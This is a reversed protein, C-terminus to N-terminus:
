GTRTVRELAARYVRAEAFPGALREAQRLWIAIAWQGDPLQGIKSLETLDSTVQALYNNHGPLGAAVGDPLWSLLLDRDLRRRITAQVLADIDTEGLPAVAKAAVPPRAPRAAGSLRAIGDVIPTLDHGTVRIPHLRELGFPLPSGDFLLPVVRVGGAAARDIARLIQSASSWDGGAPSVLVLILPTTELQALIEEDVIDGPLLDLAQVFCAHGTSRLVSAVAAARDVDAEAHIMYSDYAM